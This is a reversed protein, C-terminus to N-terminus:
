KINHISSHHLDYDIFLLQPHSAQHSDVREFLVATIEDKGKHRRPQVLSNNLLLMKKQLVYQQQSMLFEYDRHFEM